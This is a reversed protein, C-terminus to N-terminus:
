FKMKDLILLNIPTENKLFTENKLGYSIEINKKLYKKIQKKTKNKNNKINKNM